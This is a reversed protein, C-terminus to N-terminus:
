LNYDERFPEARRSGMGLEQSVDDAIEKALRLDEYSLKCEEHALALAVPYGYWRADRSMFEIDRFLAKENQRTKRPDSPVFINQFWWVRDFDIRSPRNDQSFSFLYPVALHPPIYTRKQLIHLGGGPDNQGPLVCFWKTGKGVVEEALAAIRDAGPVTHSKSV